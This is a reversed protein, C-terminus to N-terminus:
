RRTSSCRRASRGVCTPPTTASTSRRRSSRCSSGTATTTSCSSRRRADDGAPEARQRAPLGRQLADDALGRGPDPGRDAARVADDHQGGRVPRAGAQRQRESPTWAPRTPSTSSARRGRTTSSRRRATTSRRSTAPAAAASTSTSGTTSRSSSSRASGARRRPRRRACTARTPRARAGAGRSTRSPAAPTADSLESDDRQRGGQWAGEHDRVDDHLGRQLRPGDRGHEHGALAARRRDEQRRGRPRPRRRTPCTTPGYDPRARVQPEM